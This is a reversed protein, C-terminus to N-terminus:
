QYILQNISLNISLNISQNISKKSKKSKNLTSTNAIVPIPRFKFQFKEWNEKNKKQQNIKKQDFYTLYLILLKLLLKTIQVKYLAITVFYNIQVLLFLKVFV